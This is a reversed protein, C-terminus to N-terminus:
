GVPTANSPWALRQSQFTSFLVITSNVAAWSAVAPASVGPMTSLAVADESDDGVASANSGLPLKHTVFAAALVTTDNEVADSAAVPLGAGVAVILALEPENCVGRASANSKPPLKHTAFSAALVMTSYLAACNDLPPITAGTPDTLEGPPTM